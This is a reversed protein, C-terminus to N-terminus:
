LNRKLSLIADKKLIIQTLLEFNIKISLLTSKIFSEGRANSGLVFFISRGFQSWLFAFTSLESKNRQFFYFRWFTASIFLHSTERTISDNQFFLRSSPLYILEGHKKCNNSFIVDEFASYKAELFEFSYHSLMDRRWLSSGILWDTNLVKTSSLYSMPHGSKLLKGPTKSHLYFMKAMMKYFTHGSVLRSTPMLNFGVGVISRYFHQDRLFKVANLLANKEILLDDDLFLVWDVEKTILSIGTMKQRIQGHGDIHRYVINLISNFESILKSIENGSSVVIIEIPLISSKCISRLLKELAEPRNRTAIIIGM